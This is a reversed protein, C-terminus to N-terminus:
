SRIRRKQGDKKFVLKEVVELRETKELELKQYGDKKFSVKGDEDKQALRVKGDKQM